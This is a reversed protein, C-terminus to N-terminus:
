WRGNLNIFITKEKKRKKYNKKAYTLSLQLITKFLM